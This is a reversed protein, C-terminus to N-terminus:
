SDWTSSRSILFATLLIVTFIHIHICITSNSVHTQDIKGWLNHGIVFIKSGFSSLSRKDIDTDTTTATEAIKNNNNRRKLKTQLVIAWSLTAVKHFLPNSCFYNFACTHGARVFIFLKVKVVNSVADEQRSTLWMSLSCCKLAPWTTQLQGIYFM